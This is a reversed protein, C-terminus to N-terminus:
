IRVRGGDKLRRAGDRAITEGGSVGSTVTVADGLADGLVVPTKHV